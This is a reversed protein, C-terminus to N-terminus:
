WSVTVDAGTIKFADHFLDIVRHASGTCLCWDVLRVWVCARGCVKVSHGRWSPYARRLGPGAAAFMGGTYGKPCRSPYPKLLPDCYFTAEGAVRRSTVRPRVTPKPTPAPKIARTPEPSAVPLATADAEAGQDLGTAVPTIPTFDDSPTPAYVYPQTATAAGSILALALAIAASARRRTM